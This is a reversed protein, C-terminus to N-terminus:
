TSPTSPFATVAWARAWARLAHVRIAQDRRRRRGGLHRHGHPRDADRARQRARHQGLPLHERAAQDARRGRPELRARPERLRPRLAGRRAAPLAETLGGLVKPTNRLTFDTRGPDVREPSFALHFDRGAALGSEELLPAVRERTTGPYTTSELVVLQDAQLVEALGRTSDILPGLDPERNRTLPTPVCIIVADAKALRAYRTTAHIRQTLEGLLESPVDEIYSNGAEIADIKRSDVDVAIVDCGEKAFAVALPLGVYGLGIIGVTKM